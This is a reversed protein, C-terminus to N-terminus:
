VRPQLRLSSTTKGTCEPARRKQLPMGFKRLPKKIINAKQYNMRHPIKLIMEEIKLVLSFSPTFSM